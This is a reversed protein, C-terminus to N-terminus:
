FEFRLSTELIRAPRTGTASGVNNTVLASASSSASYSGSTVWGNFESHNFINYGQLAIKFVRREGWGIHVVKSV